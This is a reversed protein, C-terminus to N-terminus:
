VAAIFAELQYTFSPRTGLHEIRRGASPQVVIRDDLHPLVFNVATAEGRSGILRGSMEQRDAAMHCRAVGSAGSPFVLDADFWEDVGPAGAREGARAAALAPEGGGWPALVRQAHLSYCGIDMLAGGALALSWRPDHEA